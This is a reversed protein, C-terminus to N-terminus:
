ACSLTITHSHPTTGNTTSTVIVQKDQLLDAFNAATLTVSHPHTATGQIDYTKEVGAAVDAKPVTLAHGHNSGIEVKPGNTLCFKASPGAEKKAPTSDSGCALWSLALGSGVIALGAALFEKRSLNETM